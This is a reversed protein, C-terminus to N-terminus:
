NKPLGIHINPRLLNILPICNKNPPLINYYGESELLQRLVRLDMASTHYVLIVTDQSIGVRQLTSAIEHINMRGIDSRRSPSFVSRAKSRSLFKLFPHEGLHNHDVGNQHKVITNILIKGSVRELIALEWLQRSAPSFEDDLIVLDSGPRKGQLIAEIRRCVIKYQLPFTWRKRTASEFARRAVRLNIATNERHAKWIVPSLHRPCRGSRHFSRQDCGPYTCVINEAQFEVGEKKFSTLEFYVHCAICRAGLRLGCRSRLLRATDLDITVEDPCRQIIFNGLIANPGICRLGLNAFSVKSNKESEMGRIIQWRDVVLICPPISMSWMATNWDLIRLRHEQSLTGTGLDGLEQEEFSEFTLEDQVEDDNESTDSPDKFDADKLDSKENEDHVDELYGHRQVQNTLHRGGHQLILSYLPLNSHLPLAEVEQPDYEADFAIHGLRIHMKRHDKMGCISLRQGSVAARCYPLPCLFLEEVPHEPSDAHQLADQVSAFRATCGVRLCFPIPIVDQINKPISRPLSNWNVGMNKQLLVHTNSELEETYKLISRRMQSGPLCKRVVMSALLLALIDCNGIRPIQTNPPLILVLILGIATREKQWPVHISRESTYEDPMLTHGVPTPSPLRATKRRQGLVPTDSIGTCRTPM